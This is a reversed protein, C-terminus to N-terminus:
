GQYIVKGNLKAWDESFGVHSIINSSRDIQREAEKLLVNPQIEYIVKVKLPNKKYFIALYIM